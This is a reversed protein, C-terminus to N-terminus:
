SQFKDMTCPRLKKFGARRYTLLTAKIFVCFLHLFRLVIVSFNGSVIISNVTRVNWPHNRVYIIFLHIIALVISALKCFCSKRNHRIPWTSLTIFLVFPFAQKDCRRYDVHAAVLALSPPLIFLSCLLVDTNDKSDTLRSWRNKQQISVHTLQICM